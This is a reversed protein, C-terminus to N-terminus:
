WDQTQLRRQELTQTTDQRESLTELDYVASTDWFVIWVYYGRTFSATKVVKQDDFFAYMFFHDPDNLLYIRITVLNSNIMSQQLVRISENFVKEFYRTSVNSRWKLMKIEQFSFLLKQLTM